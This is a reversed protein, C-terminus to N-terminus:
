NRSHNLKSKFAWPSGNELSRNLNILSDICKSTVQNIHLQDVDSDIYNYLIQTFGSRTLIAQKRNFDITRNLSHTSSSLNGPLSWSYCCNIFTFLYLTLLLSRTIGLWLNGFTSLFLFM